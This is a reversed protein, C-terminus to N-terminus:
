RVLREMPADFAILAERDDLRSTLREIVAESELIPLNSESRNARFPLMIRSVTMISMRPRKMDVIPRALRIPDSVAFHAWHWDTAPPIM